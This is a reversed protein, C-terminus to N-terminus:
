RSASSAPRSRSPGHQAPSPAAPQTKLETEWAAVKRNLPKGPALSKGTLSELTRITQAQLAPDGKRALLSKLLPAAETARMSALAELARQPVVLAKGRHYHAPNELSAILAPVAGEPKLMALASAAEGRVVLAPDKMLGLVKAGSGSHGLISLARLAASRMMWSTDKLFPEIAPAIKEGGLKAAGMLAIYRHADESKKDRALKLLPHAAATGYLKEWKRLTSGFSVSSKAVAIDARLASSSPTALAHAFTPLALIALTAAIKAISCKKSNLWSTQM